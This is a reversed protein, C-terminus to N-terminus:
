RTAPPTTAFMLDLAREYVRRAVGEGGPAGSLAEMMVGSNVELVLWQGGVRVVDVSGFALNLAAAARKALALPEGLAPDAPDHLVISAGQGLNHRWNVARTEGPAPRERLAAAVDADITALLRSLERTLGAKAVQDALLELVTRTGDGTVAHRLKAYAAECAGALLVFRTESEITVFPSLAVSRGKAFLALAAAELAIPSRARHVDRGGTGANDKVVVDGGCADFFDLMARWNGPHRVYPALDPHLFLRHEVRPIGAAELVEATAAKDCAIAHTAASNLDFSYGHVARVVGGRELRLVWGDALTRVGIGRDRAADRLIRLMARDANLDSM